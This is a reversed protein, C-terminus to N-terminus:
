IHLHIGYWMRSCELEIKYSTTDQGIDGIPRGRFFYEFDPAMSGLVMASHAFTLPLTYGQGIKKILLM